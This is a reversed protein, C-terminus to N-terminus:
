DEQITTDTNNREEHKLRDVESAPQGMGPSEGFYKPGGTAKELADAIRHMPHRARGGLNRLKSVECTYKRIGMDEGVMNRFHVKIDFPKMPAETKVHPYLKRDPVILSPGGLTTEFKEGPMLVDISPATEPRDPWIMTIERENWDERDVNQFWWKVDRAVGTGVNGVVINLLPITGGFEPKLWAVVDPTKRAEEEREALKALQRTGRATNWTAVVIAVTAMLTLIASIAMVMTGGAVATNAHQELIHIVQMVRDM